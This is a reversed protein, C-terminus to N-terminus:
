FTNTQKNTLQKNNDMGRWEDCMRNQHHNHKKNKNRTSTWKFIKKEQKFWVCICVIYIYASKYPRTKQTKDINLGGSFFYIQFTQIKKKKMDDVLMITHKYTYTILIIAIIIIIQNMTFKSLIDEVFYSGWWKRVFFIKKQKTKTILDTQLFFLHLHIM